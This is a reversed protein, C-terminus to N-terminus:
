RDKRAAREDRSPVKPRVTQGDSLAQAGPILVLDGERLGQVIEVSDGRTRGVEIVRRHAVQDELVYVVKVTAKAKAAPPVCESTPSSPKTERQSGARATPTTPRPLPPSQDAPGRDEEEEVVAKLPILPLQQDADKPPDKIFLVRCSMEPLLHDDPATIAVKVQVVGRQRSVMPQLRDVRGAYVRDSYADPSIECRDVKGLLSLDREQVGVEADYRSLDGM